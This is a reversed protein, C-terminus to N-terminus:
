WCCVPGSRRCPSALWASPRSPRAPSAATTCARRSASRSALALAVTASVAGASRQRGAEGHDAPRSRSQSLTSTGLDGRLIGGIWDLYRQWAPRDLGLQRRLTEISEPTANTGLMVAAVDGPLVNVVTFVLVSALWLSALLWGLRTIVHWLMLELRLGGGRPLALRSAPMQYGTLNKVLIAMTQPSCVWLNAADAALQQQINGYLEKRKAEEPQADAQKLWDAVQPNSYHWYYKPNAYNGIDRQEVHNIITLDYDQANLFVEQLWRPFEM